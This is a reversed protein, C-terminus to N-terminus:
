RTGCGCRRTTAARRWRSVREPGHHVVGRRGIKLYGTVGRLIEYSLSRRQSPSARGRTEGDVDDHERAEQQPQTGDGGRCLWRCHRARGTTQRRRQRRDVVAYSLDVFTVSLCSETFSQTPEMTSAAATLVVRGSLASGRRSLDLAPPKTPTPLPASSSLESVGNPPGPM